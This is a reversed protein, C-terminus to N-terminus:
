HFNYYFCKELTVFAIQIEHDFLGSIKGVKLTFLDAPKQKKDRIKQHCIGAAFVTVLTCVRIDMLLLYSLQRQVIKIRRDRPMKEHIAGCSVTVFIGEPDCAASKEKHYAVWYERKVKEMRQCYELSLTM